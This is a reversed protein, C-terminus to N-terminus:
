FQKLVFVTAVNADDAEVAVAVIPVIDSATVVM